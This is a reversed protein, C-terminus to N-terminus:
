KSNLYYRVSVGAEFISMERFILNNKSSFNVKLPLGIQGGLGWHNAVRTQVWIISKGTGIWNFQNPM